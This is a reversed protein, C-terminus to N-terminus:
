GASPLSERSPWGATRGAQYSVRNSEGPFRTYALMVMAKTVGLTARGGSSIYKGTGRPASYSRMAGAVNSFYPPFPFDLFHFFEIFTASSFPLAM